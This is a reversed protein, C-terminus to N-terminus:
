VLKVKAKKAAKILAEDLTALPLQRRVALELYSADYITLGHAKALPYVDEALRQLNAPEIAVTLQQLGDAIATAQVATLRKRREMMCLANFIEQPWIAPVVATDSLLRAEVAAIPLEDPAFCPITASSDLVFPM